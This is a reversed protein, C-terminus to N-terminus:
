IYSFCPISTLVDDYKNKYEYKNDNNNNNNNNSYNNNNNASLGVNGPYKNVENKYSVLFPIFEPADSSMIDIFMCAFSLFEVSM